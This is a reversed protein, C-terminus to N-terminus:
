PGSEPMPNQESSHDRAPQPPPPSQSPSQPLCTRRCTPCSSHSSLWEQICQAHFGHKCRGIVRIGEGEEFESLCIACEAEVGALKAKMEATYIVAPAAELCKAAAVNSKQQVDVLEQQRQPASNNQRDSPNTSGGRLFCRIAANLGLACILACLLVIIIMAANAEFEKSGSYPWWRCAHSDCTTPGAPPSLLPPSLHILNVEAVEVASLGVTPPPRM